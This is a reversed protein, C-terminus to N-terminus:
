APAKVVILPLVSGVFKGPEDPPSFDVYGSWEGWKADQAAGSFTHDSDLAAIVSLPDEGDDMLAWLLAEGATIDAPSVAVRISLPWGGYTDGFAALETGEISAPPAPYVNIAPLEASRFLGPEVHVTIDTVASLQDRIQDAVAELMAALTAM